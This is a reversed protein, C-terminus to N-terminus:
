GRGIINSAWHLCYQFSYLMCIFNKTLKVIDQHACTSDCSRGFNWAEKIGRLHFVRWLLGLPAREGGGQSEVVYYLRGDVAHRGVVSWCCVVDGGSFGGWLVQKTLGSSSCTWVRTAVWTGLKLAAFTWVQTAFFAGLRPAVMLESPEM